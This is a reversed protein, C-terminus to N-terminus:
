IRKEQQNLAQQTMYKIKTIIKTNSYQYEHSKDEAVLIYKRIENLQATLSEIQADSARTNWAVIAEESTNRRPPASGCMYCCIEWMTCYDPIYPKTGGKKEACFPCERLKLEKM